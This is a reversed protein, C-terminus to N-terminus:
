FRVAFLRIGRARGTIPDFAVNSWGDGYRAPAFPNVLQLPNGERAAEILPSSLRVRRQLRVSPRTLRLEVRPAAISDSEKPIADTAASQALAAFASCLFLSIIKM